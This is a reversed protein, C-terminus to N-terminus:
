LVHHPYFPPRHPIYQYLVLPVKAMEIEITFSLPFLPLSTALRFKLFSSSLSYIVM